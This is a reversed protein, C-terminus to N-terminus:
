ARGALPWDQALVAELESQKVPKILHADFGADRTQARHESQEYGTLAVLHVHRLAPMRRIRKAVEYGSMGPLGIDILAVDPKEANAMALATPGDPAAFVTHGLLGLATRLMERNDINDEVILIRRRSERARRLPIPKTAVAASPKEILPLTLTFTAGKGVGESAADVTGGHLDALRRVLTLGIGLGGGGRELTREGQVFLDFVHPLLEPPIGVGTDRVILVARDDTRELRVEITGNEPTYKLANSLLNGVIQEIRTEDADIWIDEKISVYLRVGQTALTEVTSRVTTTLNMPRRAIDMNGTAVRGADLLDRVLVSLHTVQREIVQRMRATTDDQQGKLNLVSVANSIAGLPNRLEHGLMALFEDKARNEINATDRARAYEALARARQEAARVLASRVADVEEILETRPAPVRGEGVETAATALRRLAASIRTGFLMALLAGIGLGGLWLAGMAYLARRFPAEMVLLGGEVARQQYYAFLVFAVSAAFALPIVALLVLWLLYRGLPQRTRLPSTIKM